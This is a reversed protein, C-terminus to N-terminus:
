VQKYNDHAGKAIALLIWAVFLKPNNFTAEIIIAGAILSIVTYITLFFYEKM